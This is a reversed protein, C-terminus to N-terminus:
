RVGGTRQVFDELRELQETVSGGVIRNAFGIHTAGAAKCRGIDDAWQEPSTMQAVIRLEIGFRDPDRGHDAVRQKVHTVLRAVRDLDRFTPAAFKFGDALRAARDLSYPSPFGGHDMRGAGFWIPIPATPRASIGAQSITFFEGDHDVTRESWLRRLLGVQEEFRAARTSPDVGLTECERVNWGVSTAIRLRGGSLNSVEAAQKAALVPPYLPLLLMAPNLEVRGTAAAVFSGLTFSERWPEDFQFMPTPFPSDLTMAVHSAFGVFDFGLTEVGQVYTVIDAPDALYPIDVGYRVPPSSNAM